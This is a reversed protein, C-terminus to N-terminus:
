LNDPRFPPNIYRLNCEGWITYWLDAGYELGAGTLAAGQDATYKVVVAAANNLFRRRKAVM